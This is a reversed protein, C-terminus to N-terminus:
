IYIKEYDDPNDEPDLGDYIVNDTKGKYKLAGFVSLWKQNKKNWEQCIQLFRERGFMLEFQAKCDSPSPNIDFKTDKLKFMFDICSDIEYETMYPSLETTMKDFNKIHGVYMPKDMIGRLPRDTRSM